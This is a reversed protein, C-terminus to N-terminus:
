YIFVVFINIYKYLYIVSILTVFEQAFTFLAKELTADNASVLKSTKKLLHKSM